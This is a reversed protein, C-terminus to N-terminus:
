SFNRIYLTNADIIHFLTMSSMNVYLESVLTYNDTTVTTSITSPLTGSIQNGTDECVQYDTLNGNSNPTDSPNGFLSTGQSTNGITIRRMIVYSGLNPCTKTTGDFSTGIGVSCEIPGVNYIKTLIMVGNGSTNPDYTGSQAMGLSPAVRLLVAQTSELALNVGDSPAVAYDVQLINADRVMESAQLSRILSMGVDVSGALLFLLTSSVVAFELMMNGSQRARRRKNEPKANMHKEADNM